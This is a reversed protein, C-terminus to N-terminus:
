KKSKLIEKYEDVLGSFISKKEKVVEKVIEQTKNLYEEYEQVNSVGLEDFVRLWEERVSDEMDLPLGFEDFREFIIPGTDKIINNENLSNQYALVISEQEDVSLKVFEEMSIGSNKLINEIKIADVQKEVVNTLVGSKVEEMSINASLDGIIISSGINVITEYITTYQDWEYKGDRKILIEDTLGFFIKDNNYADMYEEYYTSRIYKLLEQTVKNNYTLLNLKENTTLFLNRCHNDELIKECLLDKIKSKGFTQDSLDKLFFDYELQKEFESPKEIVKLNGTEMYKYFYFTIGSIIVFTSIYILNEMTIYPSIYTGYIGLNEKVMEQNEVVKTIIEEKINETTNILNQNNNKFPNFNNICSKIGYIIQGFISGKLGRQIIIGIRKTGILSIGLYLMNLVLEIQATEKIINWNKNGLEKYKKYM